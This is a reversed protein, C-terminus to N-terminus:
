SGEKRLARESRSAYEGRPIPRSARRSEPRGQSLNAAEGM